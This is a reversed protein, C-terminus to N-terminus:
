YKILNLIEETHIYMRTYSLHTHKQNFRNYTVETLM